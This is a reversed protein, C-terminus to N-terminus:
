EIVTLLYALLDAMEAQSIKTELGEPMISLDTSRMEDIETRLIIDSEGEARTLTISTATEVQIVGTILQGDMTLVTYNLYSPNVERNPDLIQILIGEGGRTKVNQLPLGLDYGVGELKHCQSCERKFVLKGQAADGNDELAPRYQEVADDRRALSVGGLLDQAAQRIQPTPHAQLFQIRAPDLQSTPIVKDEL